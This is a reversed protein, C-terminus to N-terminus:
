AQPTQMFSLGHSLLANRIESLMEDENQIARRLNQRFMLISPSAENQKSRNLFCLVRIPSPPQEFQHLFKLSPYEEIHLPLQMFYNQLNSDIENVAFRLIEKVADNSLVPLPPYSQPDLWQAHSRARKAGNLDGRLERLLSRIWWGDANFPEVRISRQIAHEAKPWDIVEIALLALHNWAAYFKHDSTAAQHYGHLAQEIQGTLQLGVSKIFLTEADNPFDKLVQDCMEIATLSDGTHLVTEIQDLLERLRKTM